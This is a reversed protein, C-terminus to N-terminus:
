KNKLQDIEKKDKSITREKFKELEVKMRDKAIDIASHMDENNEEIRLTKGSIPLSCEVYFVDGKNHHNTTRAIEVKLLLEGKLEFSKIIKGLTLFKNNVYEKLSDNLEIKTSKIAIKM